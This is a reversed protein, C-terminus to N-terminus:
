YFLRNVANHFKQFNFSLVAEDMMRKIDATSLNGISGEHTHNLATSYKFNNEEIDKGVKKYADRFPMGELVLKNVKEVSFSFKYQDNELINEKVQMNTVMLHM